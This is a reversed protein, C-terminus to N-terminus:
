LWFRTGLRAGIVWSRFWPWFATRRQESRCLSEFEDMKFFLVAVGFNKTVMAVILIWPFLRYGRCGILLWRLFPKRISAFMDGHLLLCSLRGPSASSGIHAPIATPPPLYQHAEYPPLSLQDDSSSWGGPGTGIGPLPGLTDTDGGSHDSLRLNAALESFLCFSQLLM